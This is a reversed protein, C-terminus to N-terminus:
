KKGTHCIVSSFEYSENSIIFNKPFRFEKESKHNQNTSEIGYNWRYIRILICEPMKNHIRESKQIRTSLIKEFDINQGGQIPITIFISSDSNKFGPFINQVKSSLKLILIELFECPDSQVVENELNRFERMDHDDMLLDTVSKLDVANKSKQYEMLKLKVAKMWSSDCTDEMMLSTFSVLNFLTQFISIIFCTNGKRVFGPPTLHLEANTIENVKQKKSAQSSDDYYFKFVKPMPITEVQQSSACEMLYLRSENRSFLQNLFNIQTKTRKGNKLLTKLPGCGLLELFSLGNLSAKDFLIIKISLNDLLFSYKKPDENLIRGCRQM